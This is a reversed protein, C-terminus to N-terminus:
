PAGRHRELMAEAYKLDQHAQRRLRRGIALAYSKVIDHVFHFVDPM